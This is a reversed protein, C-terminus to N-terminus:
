LPAPLGAGRHQIHSGVFIVSPSWPIMKGAIKLLSGEQSADMSMWKSKTASIDLGIEQLLVEFERVM